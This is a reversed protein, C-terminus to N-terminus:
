IWKSFYNSFNVGDADVSKKSYTRPTDFFPQNNPEPVLVISTYEPKLESPILKFIYQKQGNQGSTLVILQTSGDSSEPMGLFQLPEIQRLFIVSAPSKCNNDKSCGTADTSVTFRSINGLSTLYVKEGTKQFSISMGYGKSVKLSIGTQAQTTSIQKIQSALVQNANLTLFLTLLFTVVKTKM